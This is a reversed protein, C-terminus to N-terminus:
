LDPAAPGSELRLRPLCEPYESNLFALLKERVKCRLDWAKPSNSASVLARLQISHETTETVQLM